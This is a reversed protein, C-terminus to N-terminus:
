SKKGLSNCYTGLQDEQDLELAKGTLKQLVEPIIGWCVTDQWEGKM